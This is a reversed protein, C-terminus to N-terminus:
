WVAAFFLALLFSFAIGVMSALTAAKQM